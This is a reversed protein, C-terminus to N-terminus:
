LDGPPHVRFMNEKELWPIRLKKVSPLEGNYLDVKAARDESLIVKLTEEWNSLWKRAHM